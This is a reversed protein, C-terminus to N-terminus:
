APEDQKVVPMVFPAQPSTGPVDRLGGFLFDIAGALASREAPKLQTILGGLRQLPDHAMLAIGSATLSLRTVRRDKVDPTGAVFEKRVLSAVARSAPGLTIGLYRSLGVVTAADPNARALFRLAAWQGPHMDQPSREPYVLRILQELLLASAMAARDAPLRLIDASYTDVLM